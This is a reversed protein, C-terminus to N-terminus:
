VLFCPANDSVCGVAAYKWLIISCGEIAPVVIFLIRQNNCLFPSFSMRLPNDRQHLRLQDPKAVAIECGNPIARQSTPFLIQQQPPKSTTRGCVSGM